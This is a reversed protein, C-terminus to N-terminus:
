ADKISNLDLKEIVGRIVAASGEINSQAIFHGGHLRIVNSSACSREFYETADMSVLYDKSAQILTCPQKITEGSKTLAYMNKLRQKLAATNVSKLSYRFIQLM